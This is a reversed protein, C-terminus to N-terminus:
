VRGSEDRVEDATEMEVRGKRDFVSSHATAKWSLTWRRKLSMDSDSVSDAKRLTLLSSRRKESRLIRISATAKLVMLWVM